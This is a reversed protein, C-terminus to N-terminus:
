SAHDTGEDSFELSYFDTEAAELHSGLEGFIRSAGPHGHVRASMERPHVFTDWESELVVRDTKGSLDTYIRQRGGIEGVEKSMHVIAKCLQSAPGAHGPKCYFTRRVVIM